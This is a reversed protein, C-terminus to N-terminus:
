RGPGWVTDYFDIPLHLDRARKNILVATKHFERAATKRPPKGQFHKRWAPSYTLTVLYMSRRHLETLDERTRAYRVDRRILINIEIIDQASNVSGYTRM